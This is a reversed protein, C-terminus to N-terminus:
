GRQRLEVPMAAIRCYLRADHLMGSVVDESTFVLQAGTVCVGLFLLGVLLSTRGLRLTLRMKLRAAQEQYSFYHAVGDNIYAAADPDLDRQRVPAPDLMNFLQAPQDLRLEILHWRDERRNIEHVPTRPSM